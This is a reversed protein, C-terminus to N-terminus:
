HQVGRIYWVNKYRVMIYRCRLPVSVRSKKCATKKILVQGVVGQNMDQLRKSYLNLNASINSKSASGWTHGGRSSRTRRHPGGRPIWDGLTAGGKPDSGEIHGRWCSRESSCTYSTFGVTHGGGCSRIRLYPGGRPSRIRRHPGGQHISSEATAGATPDVAV